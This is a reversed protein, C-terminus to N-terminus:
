FLMYVVYIIMEINLLSINIFASKSKTSFTFYTKLVQNVFDINEYHRYDFYIAIEYKQLGSRKICSYANDTIELKTDLWNFLCMLKNREQNECLSEMISKYQNNIKNIEMLSGMLTKYQNDTINQKLNEVVDLIKNM